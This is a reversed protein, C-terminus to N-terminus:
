EFEDNENINDDCNNNVYNKNNNSYNKNNNNDDCFINYIKSSYNDNLFFNYYKDYLEKKLYLSFKLRHYFEFEFYELKENSIGGVKAFVSLSSFDDEYFKSNILCSTIFLNYFNNLTLFNKTKNLYNDLQVFSIILTSININTFKIIRYIFDYISINKTYISFFKDKKKNKLNSKSNSSFFKKKINKSIKENILKSLSFIIKHEKNTLKTYSNYTICSSSSSLTSENSEYSSM